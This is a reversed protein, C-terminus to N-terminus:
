APAWYTSNAPRRRLGACPITCAVDYTRDGSVVSIPPNARGGIGQGPSIFLEAVVELNVDTFDIFAQALSGALGM